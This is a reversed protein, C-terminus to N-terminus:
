LLDVLVRDYRRYLLAAVVLLVATWVLTLGVALVWGPDGGVTAARFMEVVGTMPNFPLWRELDPTVDLPYIVPTLYFLALVTAQVLYRIDRFYVHLASLVLSLAATFVAAVAVAPVLLLLRAELPAGSIATVVVLVGCGLVLGFLNAGVAVLPLLARPFYIKTSLDAGDVIATASSALTGTFFSWALMASFVFVRYHAIKPFAVFRNLVYALVVAQFLPLAVAWLLGFSARRYRVYFDKRALLTLLGRDRWVDRLLSRLSSVEGQLEFGTRGDESM